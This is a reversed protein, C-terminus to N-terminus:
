ISFPDERSAKKEKKRSVVAYGILSCIAMPLLKIIVKGKRTMYIPEKLTTDVEFHISDIINEIEQYEADTFPTKSKFTLTYPKKNIITAFECLYYVKNYDIYEIHTFKYQNKYVSYEANHSEALSEARKLVEDDSYNSLNVRLSKEEDKKVILEMFNGDDCVFFAKMYAMNHIFFDYMDKYTLGIAELEPNNKINDRTFVYWSNDDISISMDTKSLNYTQASVTVPCLIFLLIIITLLISLRRKM